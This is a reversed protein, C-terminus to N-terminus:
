NERISLLKSLTEVMERLFTMNKKTETYLEGAEKLKGTKEFEISLLKNKEILAEVREIELRVREIEKQIM